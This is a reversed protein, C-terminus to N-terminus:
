SIFSMKFLFFFPSHAAHKFYETRINTSYYIFHLIQLNATRYSLYIYIYTTRFSLTLCIQIPKNHSTNKISTRLHNFIKIGFYFPFKQFITLSKRQLIYTLVLDPSHSTPPHPTHTASILSTSEKHAEGHKPCQVIEVCMVSLRCFIWPDPMSFLLNLCQEYPSM